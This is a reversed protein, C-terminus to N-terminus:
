CDILVLRDSRPMDPRPHYTPYPPRPLYDDPRPLYDDYPRRYPDDYPRYVAYPYDRYRDYYYPPPSPYPDYPISYPGPHIGRTRYYRERRTGLYAGPTEKRPGGRRSLRCTLKKGDLKSGDLAVILADAEHKAKMTVFAFGRSEGTHPDRMIDCSEVTGYDDCTVRLDDEKTTM